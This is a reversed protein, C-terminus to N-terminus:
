NSIGIEHDIMIEIMEDFSVSHNWGTMSILKEPNGVLPRRKRFLLSKNEVVYDRWNLGIYNFTKELFYQVSHKKGSAIIFDDPENLNFIMHAARVYDPAYGWDTEISLDGIVLKELSGNKIRVASKVIKQSLFKEERFVSEHNFMIGVSAFLNYIRRYYRCIQMGDYKTLGYISDPNCQSNEDAIGIETDGFILSSGAYFLKTKESHLRIAELFNILGFVNIKYSESFLISDSSIKEESSHHYAALYYIEDPKSDRIIELIEEPNTIDANKNVVSNDKLFIGKDIGTVEYQKETLYETILKGDQGSCGVILAKKL